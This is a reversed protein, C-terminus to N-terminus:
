LSVGPNILNSSSTFVNPYTKSSPSFDFVDGIVAKRGLLELYAKVVQKPITFAYSASNYAM